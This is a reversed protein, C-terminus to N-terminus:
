KDLCPNLPNSIEPAVREGQTCFVAGFVSDPEGDRPKGMVLLVDVENFRVIAEFLKQCKRVM